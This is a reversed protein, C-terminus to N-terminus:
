REYGIEKRLKNIIKKLKRCVHAQSIDLRKGIDGQTLKEYGLLGFNHCIIFKDKKPLDEIAEYVKYIREAEILKDEISPSNDPIMDIYELEDGNQIVCKNNLSVTNLNAKRIHMNMDRVYCRIENKICMYLYTSESYGKSKDFMKVGKCLGIMGLEKAEEYSLSLYPFSKIATGILGQNRLMMEEQEETM